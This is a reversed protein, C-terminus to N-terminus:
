TPVTWPAMALPLRAARSTNRFISHNTSLVTQNPILAPFRLKVAMGFRIIFFSITQKVRAANANIGADCAPSAL